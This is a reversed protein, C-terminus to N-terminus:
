QSGRVSDIWHANAEADPESSAGPTSGDCAEAPEDLEGGFAAAWYWDYDADPNHARSIGIATFEEGLM